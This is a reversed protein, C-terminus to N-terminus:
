KPLSGLFGLAFDRLFPFDWEFAPAHALWLGSDNSSENVQSQAEMRRNQALGAANERRTVDGRCGTSGLIPLEPDDYAM